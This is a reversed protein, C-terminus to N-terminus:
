QKQFRQHNYFRIYKHVAYKVEKATRFFYLHFCESQFYSFFNEM